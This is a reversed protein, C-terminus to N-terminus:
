IQVKDHDNLTVYWIYGEIDAIGMESLYGIYQMVQKNYKENKKWGFKYDVVIAKNGKIMVRDPRYLHENPVVIAVENMVKWTGNFWDNYPQESILSNVEGLMKPADKKQILGEFVLKDISKPVDDIVKIEQFIKHMLNGFYRKDAEQPTNEWFGEAVSRQRLREKIENGPYEKLPFINEKTKEIIQIHSIEGITFNNERNNWYEAFMLQPCNNNIKENVGSLLQYLIDSCSLIKDTKEPLPAFVFLNNSARTFAVYLVNLNDVMSQVRELYYDTAFVSEKLKSSYKVPIFDLQNLPKENTNCWIFPAMIRNNDLSWDCFPILVNEFELGKSKHITIVKIADQNESVSVSFSFKKEEWYELFASLITPANSEYGLICDHFTQLYPLNKISENLRFISVLKEFLEDLTLHRFVHINDLFEGPLSVSNNEFETIHTTNNKLIYNKYDNLLAAANISDQPYVLYQFTKILFCVVPAAYIFASDNSIVDFKYNYDAPLKENYDNLFDVIERGDKATRVLIAIDRQRYGKKLISEIKEPLLQLVNKRWDKEKNDIFQIQVYGDNLNKIEPVLQMNGHYAKELLDLFYSKENEVLASDNLESYLQLKLLKICSAFTSNNFAIIRAKSRWNYELQETKVGLHVLDQEVKGAMIKWDTNRWRYISQKIDGVLMSYNNSALSNSILPKFNDWQIGSTDQFEDIMFHSYTQGTKEYIFPTDNEAVIAKLFSGAHALVFINNDAAYNNVEASLDALIGLTYFEFTVISCSIYLAYKDSITKNIDVLIEKLGFSELSVILAPDKKEKSFWNEISEEAELARKGPKDITKKSLKLLYGGIGSKGYKLSEIDIDHESLIELAKKSKAVITNEFDQTNKKLEKLFNGLWEKDAIKKQFSLPFSKFQENFLQKGLGLIAHKFDWAKGDEIRQEAYAILWKQLTKDNEINLLMQDVAKELVNDTDLEVDFNFQIGAERAFAKIIRQFFSDITSVSFRSYNHLIRELINQAKLQLETEHINFEKCLQESFNSKEKQSLIYLEKLIRNKMEETAKNTFTVALIHKYNTSYKFLLRLYEYTIAYTKGSGASARILRLQSM